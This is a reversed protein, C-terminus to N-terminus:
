LKISNVRNNFQTSYCIIIGRFDEDEDNEDEDDEYSSAKLATGFTRQDENDESEDSEDNEADMSFLETRFWSLTAVAAELNPDKKADM